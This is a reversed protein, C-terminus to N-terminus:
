FMAIPIIDNLKSVEGRIGRPGIPGPAGVNGTPGIQGPPGINGKSYFFSYIKFKM